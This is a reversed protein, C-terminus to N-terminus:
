VAPNRSFHALEPAADWEGPGAVLIAERERQGEAELMLRVLRSLRSFHQLSGQPARFTAQADPSTVVLCGEGSASIAQDWSLFRVGGVVSWRLGQADVWVRNPRLSLRNSAIACTVFLVFASISWGPSQSSVLSGLTFLLAFAGLALLAYVGGELTVGGPFYAEGSSVEQKAFAAGGSGTLAGLAQPLLLLSLILLLIEGGELWWGVLAGVDVVAFWLLARHWRVILAWLTVSLRLGTTVFYVIRGADAVEAALKFLGAWLILAIVWVVTLGGILNAQLRSGRSM